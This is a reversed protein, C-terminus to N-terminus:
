TSRVAALWRRCEAEDPVEASDADAILKTVFERTEERTAGLSTMRESLAITRRSIELNSLRWVAPAPLRADQAFFPAALRIHRSENIESAHVIDPRFLLADGVEFSTSRWSGTFADPDLGAGGGPLPADPRHSDIALALGGARSEIPALPVWFRIHDPGGTGLDRHPTTEWHGGSPLSLTLMTSRHVLPPHGWLREIIPELVGSDLLPEAFGDVREKVHMVSAQYAKFEAPAPQGSWRVLERDPQESAILDFGDLGALVRERMANVQERPLMGRAVVYGDRAFLAPGDTSDPGIENGLAGTPSIM